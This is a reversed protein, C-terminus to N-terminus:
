SSTVAVKRNDIVLSSHTICPLFTLSSCHGFTPFSPRSLATYECVCLTKLVFDLLLVRKWVSDVLFTHATLRPYICGIFRVHWRGKRIHLHCAQGRSSRNRGLEMVQSGKRNYLNPMTAM